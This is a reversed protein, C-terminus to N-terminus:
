LWELRAAAPRFGGRKTARLPIVSHQSRKFPAQHILRITHITTVESIRIPDPKKGTKAM